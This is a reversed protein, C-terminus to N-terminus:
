TRVKVSVSTERRPAPDKPVKRPAPAAPHGVPVDELLGSLKDFFDSDSKERALGKTPDAERGAYKRWCPGLLEDLESAARAKREGEPLQQSQRDLRDEYVQRLLRQVERRDRDM